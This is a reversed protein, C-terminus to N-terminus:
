RVVVEFIFRALYHDSPLLTHANHASTEISHHPQPLGASAYVIDACKRHKYNFWYISVGHFTFLFIIFQEFTTRRLSLHTFATSM